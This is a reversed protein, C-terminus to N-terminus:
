LIAFLLITIFLAMALIELGGFILCTIATYHYYWEDKKRLSRMAHIIAPIGLPLLILGLLMFRLSKKAEKEHPMFQDNWHEINWQRQADARREHKREWKKSHKREPKKEASASTDAAHKRKFLFAADANTASGALLLCSLFIILLNKM